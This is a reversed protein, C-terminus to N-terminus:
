QQGSGGSPAGNLERADVVEWRHTTGDYKSNSELRGPGTKISGATTGLSVVTVPRGDSDVCSLTHWMSFPYDDKVLLVGDGPIKFVWVGHQLNLSQGRSRDKVIRFEGRYSVPLIIKIPYGSRRAYATLVFPVVAAALCLVLGSHAMSRKKTDPMRVCGAAVCGIGVLLPVVFLLNVGLFLCTTPLIATVTGVCILLPNRTHM